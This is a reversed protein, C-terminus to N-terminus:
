TTQVLNELVVGDRSYVINVLLVVSFLAHLVHLVLFYTSKLCLVYLKNQLLQIVYFKNNNHGINTQNLMCDWDEFVKYGLYSPMYSDVKRNFSTKKKAPKASTLERVAKSFDSEDTGETAAPEEKKVAKKASAKKTTAKAAPAKTAPAKTKAAKAKKPPPPGVHM